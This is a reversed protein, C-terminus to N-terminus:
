KQAEGEEPKGKPITVTFTTGQGKVSTFSISGGISKLIDRILSLGLGNGNPELKRADATRFFREFIHRQDEPAIGYGSDRVDIIMMKKEYRATVWVHGKWPTYQIANSLITDFITHVLMPDCHIYTHAFSQEVDVHIGKKQIQTQMSQTVNTIIQWVDVRQPNFSFEGREFRSGELFSDLVTIAEVISESMKDVLDKHEPSLPTGMDKDLLMESSWRIAGLPTRLRHSLLGVMTSRKEISETLLKAIRYQKFLVFAVILLIVGVAQTERPLAIIHLFFEHM